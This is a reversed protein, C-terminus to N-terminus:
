KMLLQEIIDILKKSENEFCLEKAALDANEKYKLIDNYSLKNLKEALESPDFTNSVIGIKYQECIKKMDPTPGIALM